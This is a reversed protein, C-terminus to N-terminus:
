QDVKLVWAPQSMLAEPVDPLQISLGGKAAKFKLQGAAGLLTVSKATPV